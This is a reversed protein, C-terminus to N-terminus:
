KVWYLKRAITTNSEPDDKSMLKGLRAMEALAASIDKKKRDWKDYNTKPRPGNIIKCIGPASVEGHKKVLLFLEELKESKPQTKKRPKVEGAM